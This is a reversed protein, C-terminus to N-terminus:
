RCMSALRPDDGCLILKWGLPQRGPRGDMTFDVWTQQLRGGHRGTSATIVLETYVGSPIRGRSLQGDWKEDDRCTPVKLGSIATTYSGLPSTRSGDFHPPGGLSSGFDAYRRRNKGPVGALSKPPVRHVLARVNVLGTSKMKVGTLVIPTSGRSCLLLEGISASWRHRFHRPPDLAQGGEGGFDLPGRDASFTTVTASGPDPHSGCASLALL